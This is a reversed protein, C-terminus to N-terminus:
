NALAALWGNETLDPQDEAFTQDFDAEWPFVGAQDPWVIQLCPFNDGGYFWRSWGLHNAYHRKAVPFAYAAINAFVQNTRIGVPLGRDEEADHFIDWLVQHAIENRLGFVIVEPKRIKVWFGTTYAFGPGEADAQVNTCFWGHERIKAVFSREHQDLVEPPADLATAM